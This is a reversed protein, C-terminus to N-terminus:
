RRRGLALGFPGPADDTSAASVGDAYNFCEDSGTDFIAAAVAQTDSSLAGGFDFSAVNFGTFGNNAGGNGDEGIMEGFASSFTEDNNQEAVAVANNIEAMAAAEAAAAQQAAEQEAAAAAAEEAAAAAAAAAAEAAAQAAAERQAAAQAAAAAAAAAEQAQKLAAERAAAEEAAAAAAAENAAAQAEAQIDLEAQMAAQEQQAINELEAEAALLDAESPGFAPAATATGGIDSGDTGFIQMQQQMYAEYSADAASQADAEAQAAADAEAQAENAAQSAATAAAAVEQAHEQAQNSAQAAVAASQAAELVAPAHTTPIATTAAQHVSQGVCGITNDNTQYGDFTFTFLRQVAEEADGSRSALTNRILDTLSEAFQYHCRCLAHGCNADTETQQGDYTSAICEFRGTQADKEVDYYYGIGYMQNILESASNAQQYCGNNCDLCDRVCTHWERCLKDVENKPHGQANSTDGFYSPCWCLDLSYEDEFNTLADEVVTDEELSHGCGAANDCEQQQDGGYSKYIDLLIPSTETKQGSTQSLSVESLLVFALSYKSM